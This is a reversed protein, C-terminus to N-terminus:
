LYIFTISNNVTIDVKKKRVLSLNSDTVFIANCSFIKRNVLGFVLQLRVIQSSVTERLNAVQRGVVNLLLGNYNIVFIKKEKIFKFEFDYTVFSNNKINPVFHHSCVCLCFNKM